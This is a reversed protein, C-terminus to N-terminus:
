AARMEPMNALAARAERIAQRVMDPFYHCICVNEGRKARMISCNRDMPDSTRHGTWFDSPNEYISQSLYDSALTHGDLSVRVESDFAQWFGSELNERVEGENDWSLDLDDSESLILSITFRKTKFTWITEM